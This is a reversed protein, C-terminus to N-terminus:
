LDLHRTHMVQPQRGAPAQYPYPHPSPIILKPRKTGNFYSPVYWGAEYPLRSSFCDAISLCVTAFWPM